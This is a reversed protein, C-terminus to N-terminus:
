NMDLSKQSMTATDAMPLRTAFNLKENVMGVVM